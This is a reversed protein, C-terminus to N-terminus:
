GEASGAPPVDSAATGPEATGSVVGQEDDRGVLHTATWALAALVVMAAPGLALLAGDTDAVGLVLDVGNGDPSAVLEVVDADLDDGRDRSLPSPGADFELEVLHAVLRGRADGLDGDVTGLPVLTLELQPGDLGVVWDSSSREFGSPTGIEGDLARIALTMPALMILMVVGAILAVLLLLHRFRRM